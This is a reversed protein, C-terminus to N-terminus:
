VRIFFVNVKNSDTLRGECERERFWRYAACVGSLPQLDELSRVPKWKPDTEDPEVRQTRNAGSPPPHDGMEGVADADDVEM